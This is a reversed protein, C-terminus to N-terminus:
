RSRSRRPSAGDGQTAHRQKVEMELGRVKELGADFAGYLLKQSVTGDRSAATEIQLLFAASHGEALEKFSPGLVGPFPERYTRALGAIRREIMSALEQAVTWTRIFAQTKAPDRDFNRPLRLLARFPAEPHAKQLRFVRDDLTTM